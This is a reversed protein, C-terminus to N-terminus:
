SVLPITNTLRVPWVKVSLVPLDPVDTYIGVNIVLIQYSWDSLLIYWMCVMVINM